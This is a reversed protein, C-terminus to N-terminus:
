EVEFLIKNKIFTSSFKEFIVQENINTILYTIDSQKMLKM